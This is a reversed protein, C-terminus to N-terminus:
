PFAKKEKVASKVLSQWPQNKGLNGSQEDGRVTLAM